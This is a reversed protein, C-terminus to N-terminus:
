KIAESSMRVAVPSRDEKSFLAVKKDPKDAKAESGMSCHGEFVVGEQIVLSPTVINGLLKAPAKLEVRKRATIDGSVKGKIIITNAVIQASVVASEGVIVTEQAQVEGDVQGDIRVSGEFTLKGEVRSGKGLHTQVQAEAPETSSARDDLRPSSSMTHSDEPRQARDDKGFLAM